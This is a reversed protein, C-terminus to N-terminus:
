DRSTLQDIKERNLIGEIFVYVEEREKHAKSKTSLPFLKSLIVFNNGRKTEISPDAGSQLLLFAMAYQTTIATEHLPTYGGNNQM